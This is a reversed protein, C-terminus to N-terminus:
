TRPLCVWYVGRSRPHDLAVSPLSCLGSYTFGARAPIIWEARPFNDFTIIYVGRSRPHDSPEQLRTMSPWTFGARAPIIGLLGPPSGHSGRLGRALPSSGTGTDSRADGSAYVGRSRPHDSALLISNVVRLTFGARAPIIGIVRQSLGLPLPLGRALPSSGRLLDARLGASRYVGRSRPHDRRPRGPGGCWRTFGARAPIIGPPPVRDVPM